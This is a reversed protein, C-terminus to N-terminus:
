GVLGLQPRFRMGSGNLDIVPRGQGDAELLPKPGGVNGHPWVDGSKHDWSGARQSGAPARYQIHEIEGLVVRGHDTFRPSGHFAASEAAATVGGLALRPLHPLRLHRLALHLRPSPNHFIRQYEAEAEAPSFGMAQYAEMARAYRKQEAEAAKATARLEREKGKAEARDRREQARQAARQINQGIPKTPSDDPAARRAPAQRRPPRVPATGAVAIEVVSLPLRYERALSRILEDRRGYYSGHEYERLRDRLHQKAEARRQREEPPIRGKRSRKPYAYPRRHGFLFSFLGM